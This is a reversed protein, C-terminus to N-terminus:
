PSCVSPLLVRAGIWSWDLWPALANAVIAHPYSEPCTRGLTCTVAPLVVPAPDHIAAHDRNPHMLVEEPRGRQSGIRDAEADGIVMAALVIGNSGDM